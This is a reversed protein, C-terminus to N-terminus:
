REMGPQQACEVCVAIPLAAFLGRRHLPNCRVEVLPPKVWWGCYGCRVLGATTTKQFGFM